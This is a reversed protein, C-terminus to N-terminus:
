LTERNGSFTVYRLFRCNNLLELKIYRQFDESTEFVHPIKSGVPFLKYIQLEDLVDMKNLILHEVGTQNIADVLRGMNLYGVKRPRGTTEGYEAGVERIREEDERRASVMTDSNGVYTEYVKGVGYVTRLMQAPIGFTSLAHAPHINSSTVYPYFGNDIDLWWGQSGEMLINQQNLMLDNHYLPQRMIFEALEPVDVARIGTRLMKDAYAPGIGQKTTGIKTDKGDLKMHKPQIIHVNPHILIRHRINFSQFKELEGMFKEVNLVCGPGIIIKAKDDYLASTLMHATHKTDGVWVAHGANPGGNYKAVGWYGNQEVLWKSIKGKGCDGFQVDVLVDVQM